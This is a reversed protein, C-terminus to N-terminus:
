VMPYLAAFDDDAFVAGLEDRLQIYTSGHPFATRAVCTTDDPIPAPLQARLSM